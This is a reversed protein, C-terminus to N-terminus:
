KDKKINRQVDPKLQDFIGRSTRGLVLESPTRGTSRQITNRHSFLFSQLRLFQDPADIINMREKFTKVMREALGNSQPHYPTMQIHTIGKNKCFHTFHESTLRPGSDSAIFKPLGFSSFISQPVISTSSFNFYDFIM